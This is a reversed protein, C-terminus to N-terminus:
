IIFFNVECCNYFLDMLMTKGGGVAGYLYLGKPSKTIKKNKLGQEIWKRFFGPKKPKYNMLENHLRQLNHVVKMQYEDETLDGTTIKHKYVEIPNNGMQVHLVNANVDTYGRFNIIQKTRSFWFNYNYSGLKKISYYYAM